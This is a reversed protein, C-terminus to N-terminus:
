RSSRNRLYLNSRKNKQDQECEELRGKKESINKLRTYIKEKAMHYANALQKSTERDSRSYRKYINIGRDNLTYVLRGLLVLLRCTSEIQDLGSIVWMEGMTQPINVHRGPHGVALIYLTYAYQDALFIHSLGCNLPKNNCM